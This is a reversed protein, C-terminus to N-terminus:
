KIIRVVGKDADVEVEDGDQLIKTAIKTGIICPIDLERSVIAAHSTVGGEDTVIAAAKKMAPVTEPRTMSAVLIDGESMNIMDHTTQIIKVKGTAKGKSAVSGKIESVEGLNKEVFVTDHIQQALDGSIIEYGDLTQIVLVGSRRKEFETTDINKAKLLNELEHIYTYEMHKKSLGLRKGFETMFINQYHSAMLVYKKREDQVYAFVESIRILINTPQDLELKEILKKKKEKLEELDNDLKILEEAPNKDAIEDLQEKFYDTSLNLDKAYNNQIWHYKNTHEDLSKSVDKGMKLDKLIVLRDRHERAVFSEEVPSILLLYKEDIDKDKVDKDKLAQKIQPELFESAHMSFADQIGISIGYEALYGQYWKNYLDLLKESTLSKLDTKDVEDMILNFNDIRKHWDRLFDDLVNTNQNVKDIFSKRLRIMDEDNWYWDGVNDKFYFVTITHSDGYYNLLTKLPQEGVIFFYHLIGHFGKHTWTKKDLQYKNIIDKTIM